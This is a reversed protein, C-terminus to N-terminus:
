KPVGPLRTQRNVGHWSLPPRLSASAYDFLGTEESLPSQLAAIFHARQVVAFYKGVYRRAETSPDASPSLRGHRLPVIDGRWLREEYLLPM